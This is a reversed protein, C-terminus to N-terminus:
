FKNCANVFVCPLLVQCDGVVANFLLAFRNLVCGANLLIVRSGGTAKTCTCRGRFELRSNLIIFHLGLLQKATRAAFRTAAHLGREGFHRRHWRASSHLHRCLSHGRPHDGRRRLMCWQEGTRPSVKNVLPAAGEFCFHPHPNRQEVRARGARRGQHRAHGRARGIRNDAGISRGGTTGSAVNHRTSTARTM